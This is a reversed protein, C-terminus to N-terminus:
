HATGDGGQVVECRLVHSRAVQHFLNLGSRTLADLDSPHRCRAFGAGDDSQGALSDPRNELNVVYNVYNTSLSRDSTNKKNNSRKINPHKRHFRTRVSLLVLM